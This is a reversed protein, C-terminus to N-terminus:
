YIEETNKTFELVEQSYTEKINKSGTLLKNKSNENYLRLNSKGKLSLDHNNESKFKLLDQKSLDIYDIGNKLGLKEGKYNVARRSTNLENAIQITTFVKIGNLMYGNKNADYKGTTRIEKLIKKVEKKFVKAIPKRSQMLVEYLGYETLFWQEQQGKLAYPNNVCIKEDEDINQLMMRSNTHEIWEAVDKALFLPEEFSGYIKFDKTLVKREDLIKLKEM